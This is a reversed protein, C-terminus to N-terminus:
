TSTLIRQYLEEPSEEGLMTKLVAAMKIDFDHTRGKSLDLNVTDILIAALLASAEGSELSRTPVPQAGSELATLVGLVLLMLLFVWPLKTLLDLM